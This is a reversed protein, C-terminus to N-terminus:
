AIVTFPKQYGRTPNMANANKYGGIAMSNMLPWNAIMNVHNITISNTFVM